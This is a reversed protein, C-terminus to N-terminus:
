QGGGNEESISLINANSLLLQGIKRDNIQINDSNAEVLKEIYIFNHGYGIDFMIKVKKGLFIKLENEKMKKLM